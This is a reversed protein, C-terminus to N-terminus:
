RMGRERVIAAVIAAIQKVDGENMIDNGGPPDARRDPQQTRIRRLKQLDIIAPADEEEEIRLPLRAVVRAANGGLRRCARQPDSGLPFTLVPQHPPMHSEHLVVRDAAVAVGIDVRSSRAAAYAAAVAETASPMVSRTPIGEEEAGIEVWRDLDVPAADVLCVHIAPRERSLDVM